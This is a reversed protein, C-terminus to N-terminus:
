SLSAIKVKQVLNEQFGHKWDLVSCTFFVMSKQMNSNTETGFKLKVLWNRYKTGFKRLFPHKLDLVPFTFLFM